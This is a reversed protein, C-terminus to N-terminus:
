QCKERQLVTQFHLPSRGKAIGNGNDAITIETFLANESFYISIEGGEVTHEVCNKIINILAEATWNFDGM